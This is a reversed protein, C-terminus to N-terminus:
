RPSTSELCKAATASSQSMSARATSVRARTPTRGPASSTRSRGTLVREPPSAFNDPTAPKSSRGTSMQSSSSGVLLRSARPRSSSYPTMSVQGPASMTTLWSRSSSSRTSWITSSRSALGAAEASRVGRVGFGDGGFLLGREAEDAGRPALQRTLLSLIGLRLDPQGPSGIAAPTGWRVQEGYRILAVLQLVGFVVYGSSSTSRASRARNDTKAPLQVACPACATPPSSSSATSPV